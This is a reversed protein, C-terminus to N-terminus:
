KGRCSNDTRGRAGNDTDAEKMITYIRGFTLPDVCLEGYLVTFENEQEVVLDSLFVLV